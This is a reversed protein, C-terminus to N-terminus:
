PTRPPRAVIVQVAASSSAGAPDTATLTITYIRPDAFPAPANEARLLVHHPDLVQWDIDPHRPSDPAHENETVAITPTLAAGCTATATYALTELVFQHTPPWLFPRDVTLGAITPPPNSVHVIASATTLPTPNPNRSASAATATNTIAAGDRVDCAATLTVVFHAPLNVDLSGASCVIQGGAEGATPTTCSWGAPATLSQFTMGAPIPDSLSPNAAADPGHDIVDIAFSVSHGSSVTDVNAVV